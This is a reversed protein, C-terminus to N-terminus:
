FSVADSGQLDKMGRSMSRSTDAQIEFLLVEQNGSISYKSVSSETPEIKRAPVTQRERMRDTAKIFEPHFTEIRSVTSGNEMISPEM